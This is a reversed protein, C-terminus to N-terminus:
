TPRGSVEGDADFQAALRHALELAETAPLGARGVLWTTLPAAPRESGHAAVGALELLLKCEEETPPATSILESFRSLWESTTTMFTM